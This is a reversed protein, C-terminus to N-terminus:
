NADSYGVSKNYEQIKQKIHSLKNKLYECRERKELYTPDAKKRQYEMLIGNIREEEMQSSPRSPLNAMMEDMEEFKKAMAQVEAHLEKYEAYQDNFVAKYQDREEDTYISPYKAVYDAIIVPKPIHGAPIHGRLIEPEPAMLPAAKLHNPADMIDPQITPLPTQESM